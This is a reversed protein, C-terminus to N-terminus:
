KLVEYEGLCDPSWVGRAVGAGSYSRMGITAMTYKREHVYNTIRYKGTHEAVYRKRGGGATGAQYYKNEDKKYGYPSVQMATINGYTVSGWNFYIKTDTYKDRPDPHVQKDDSSNLSFQWSSDTYGYQEDSSADIDSGGIENTEGVNGAAKTVGTTVGVGAAALIGAMAAIIIKRKM